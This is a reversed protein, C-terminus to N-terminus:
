PKADYFTTQLRDHCGKFVDIPNVTPIEDSQVTNPCSGEGLHPLYSRKTPQTNLGLMKRSEKVVLCNYRWLPPSMGGLHVSASELTYERRLNPLRLNDSRSTSHLFVALVKTGGVTSWVSLIVSLIKPVTRTQRARTEKVQKEGFSDKCLNM